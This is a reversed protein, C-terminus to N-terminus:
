RKVAGFDQLIGEVMEGAADKGGRTDWYEDQSRIYKALEQNSMSRHTGKEDVYDIVNRWKPDDVFNIEEPDLEMMNAITRRYPDTIQRLSLGQELEDTLNPFLAKAHAILVGRFNEITSRGSGIASLWYSQTTDDIKVMYSQSMERIQHLIPSKETTGALPTIEAALMVRMQAPTYGERVAKHAFYSLYEPTLITEDYGLEGAIQIITDSADWISRQFTAPDTHQLNYYQRASDETTKWWNTAMIAAQFKDASWKEAHARQMIPGVEPNDAMYALQPYKEKIASLDGGAPAVGSGIRGTSNNPYAPDGHINGWTEPGVEGDVHLGHATQYARVAAALDEGFYDDDPGNFYGAQRLQNKMEVVDAGTDGVRM